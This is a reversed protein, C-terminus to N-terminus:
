KPKEGTKSHTSTGQLRSYAPLYQSLVGVLTKSPGFLVVEVERDKGSEEHEMSRWSM